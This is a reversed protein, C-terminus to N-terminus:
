PEVFNIVVGKKGFRGARAARHMYTEAKAPFDTYHLSIGFNIVLNVKEIDIGRGFIDTAILIRSGNNKFVDYSRLRDIQPLRSHICLPNFLQMRLVDGLKDVKEVQNVFIIVQNFPVNDLIFCLKHFKNAKQIKMYVHTLSRLNVKKNNLQM